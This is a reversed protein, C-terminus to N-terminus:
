VDPAKFEADETSDPSTGKMFIILLRQHISHHYHEVMHQQSWMSCPLFVSIYRTDKIIHLTYGNYCSFSPVQSNLKGKVEVDYLPEGYYSKLNLIM